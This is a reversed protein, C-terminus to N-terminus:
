SDEQWSWFRGTLNQFNYTKDTLPTPVEPPKIDLADKENVFDPLDDGVSIKFKGLGTM